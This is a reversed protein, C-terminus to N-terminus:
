KKNKQLTEVLLEYIKVLDEGAALRTDNQWLEAVTNDSVGLKQCVLRAQHWTPLWVLKEAINEINGFIDIFRPLSLIFYIRGPFPSDPKIFGNPDWVFCGVHPQWNLGLQKMQM